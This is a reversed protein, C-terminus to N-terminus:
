TFCDIFRQAEEGIDPADFLSTIVAVCDAGAAIVQPANHSTIGGIAVIPVRLEARAQGILDFDARRAQPKTGSAFIAGFAVYDAGAAVASRALALENYCSAGLLMTRPMKERAQTLEGDSSGLHVGDAEVQLALALDDNIILHAHYTRTLARLAHAQEELLLPPAVKNRYQVIVPGRGLVQRVKHLLLDTDLLDPTIAYLGHMM